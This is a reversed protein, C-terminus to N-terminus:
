LADFITDPVFYMFGQDIADQVLQRRNIADFKNRLRYVVDNVTRWDIGLIQGIEKSSKGRVLYFLVESERNTLKKRRNGTLSYTGHSLQNRCLIDGLRSLAGKSMEQAQCSIAIIEGDVHFKSKTTLFASLNGDAWTHVNLLQQTGHLLVEKDQSYVEDAHDALTCNCEYLSNGVADDLGKYGSMRVFKESCALIKGNLDKYVLIDPAGYVVQITYESFTRISLSMSSGSLNQM